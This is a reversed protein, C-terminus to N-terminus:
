EQAPPMAMLDEPAATLFISIHLLSLPFSVPCLQGYWFFGLSSHLSLAAPSNAHQPLFNLYFFWVAVRLCFHKNCQHLIQDNTLLCTSSWSWSQNQKLHNTNRVELDPKGYYVGWSKFKDDQQEETFVVWSRQPKLCYITKNGWLFPPLGM